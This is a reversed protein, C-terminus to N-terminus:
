RNKEDIKDGETIRYEVAKPKKKEDGRRCIYPAIYVLHKDAGRRAYHGRVNWALTRYNYARRPLPDTERILIIQRKQHKITVTKKGPKRKKPKKDVAEASQQPKVKIVKPEAIQESRHYLVYSQIAIVTRLVEQIHERNDEFMEQAKEQSKEELVVGTRWIGTKADLDDYDLDLAYRRKEQDYVTVTAKTLSPAYDVLLETKVTWKLWEHPELKDFERPIKMEAYEGLRNPELREFGNALFKPVDSDPVYCRVSAPYEIVFRNFIPPVLPSLHNEEFWARIKPMMVGDLVVRPLKALRKYAIIEAM